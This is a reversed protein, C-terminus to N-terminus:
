SIYVDKITSLSKMTAKISFPKEFNCVMSKWPDGLAEFDLTGVGLAAANAIHKIEKPNFGMITSCFADVSVPNAGAVLVSLKKPNGVLPGNGEMCVMGDLINMDSRITKALYPLIDDLKKHFRSKKAEKLCGFLNKISLTVLTHSCTKIKALNILYDTELLIRPIEIEIGAIPKLVFEDRSLNYFMVKWEDLKTKLGSDRIRNDATGAINDSEVILPECGRDRVMKITSEIISFNTLVMGHPNKSNCVNPKILVRMGSKIQLGGLLDVSRRVAPEIDDNVNVLAVKSM